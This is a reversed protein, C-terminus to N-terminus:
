RKHRRHASGSAAPRRGAKRRTTSALAAAKRGPVNEMQSVVLQRQAEHRSLAAVFTALVDEALDTDQGERAMEATTKKLRTIHHRCEAIMRDIFALEDALQDAAAMM